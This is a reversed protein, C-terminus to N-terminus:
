QMESLELWRETKQDITKILEAIEQSAKILQDHDAIHQLKEELEKRRKEMAPIEKELTDFERKDNYSLKNKTKEVTKIAPATVKAAPAVPKESLSALYQSYNGPYEGLEGNGKFVMLNKAVKDIFYRDHSIIIVCGAFQTLYDELASLTYIDLDNTPEDLILMNPNRMLVRCLALRKKEGGSLKSIYQFHTKKNFQFRELLQSATLKRGGKLPIIEAIETIAEIVKMDDSFEFKNQRYYGIEVTDGIVIKGTDPQEEGVIMRLLTTKGIGNPGVLGLKEDRKVLYNFKKLIVKDGYSKSVNHFEIVKSGLRNFNVELQLEEDQPGTDTKEKLDYFAETRAKSKTGRAKPQRRIWELEKKLLSQAKEMNVSALEERLAKQELYYTFNGKYKYISENALELVEDCVRDLFYRDHTVMLLTCNAKELYNELWEIMVLDLHNTPEDLILFDPNEILVKALQVRKRQGGSLTKILSAPQNITLRDLVEHVRHEMDWANLAEVAEFAKQMAEPSANDTLCKEYNSIAQMESSNGDFIADWISQNPPLNDDQSLYSVRIDNRFTITGSNPTSQGSLCRLLTTKGSGNKAVLAVKQGKAIGFTINTFLTRDGFSVSLNEVSLVNM